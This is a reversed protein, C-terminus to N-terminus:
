YLITIKLMKKLLFKKKQALDLKQRFAVVILQVVDEVAVMAVIRADRDLAQDVRERRRLRLILPVVLRLARPSADSSCHGGAHQETKPGRAFRQGHIRSRRDWRKHDSQAQRM